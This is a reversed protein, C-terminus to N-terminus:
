LSGEMKQRNAYTFHAAPLIEVAYAILRWYVLDKSHYIPLGPMMNFSSITMYYDNGVRIVDPDSLGMKIITNRYNPLPASCGLVLLLCLGLMLWLSQKSLFQVLVLSTSMFEPLRPDCDIRARKQM